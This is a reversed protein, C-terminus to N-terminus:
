TLEEEAIAATEKNLRLAFSWWWRAFTVGLELSMWRPYDPDPRPYIIDWNFLEMGPGYSATLGFSWEGKHIESEDDIRGSGINIRKGDYHRLADIITM